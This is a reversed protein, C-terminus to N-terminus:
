KKPKVSSTNANLLDLVKQTLDLTDSGYILVRDNLIIDYKEKQAYDKVVAEIELLVERVKDDREKRLETQKKQDFEMLSQKDKEIQDALKARDEEKLLILKREAEQIKGLLDNRDKKYQTSEQELVKDYDTTKQYQDFVRSLGVYGIKLGAAQAFSKGSFCLMFVVVLSLVFCK